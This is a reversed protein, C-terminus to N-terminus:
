DDCKQEREKKVKISKDPRIEAFAIQLMHLLYTLQLFKILHENHWEM